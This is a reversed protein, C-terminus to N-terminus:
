GKYKFKVKLMQSFVPNDMAAIWEDVGFYLRDSKLIAHVIHTDTCNKDMLIKQMIFAHEKSKLAEIVLEKSGKEAIMKLLVDELVREEQILVKVCDDSCKNVIHKKTMFNLHWRKKILRALCNPLNLKVVEMNHCKDFDNRNIAKLVHEEPAYKVIASLSSQSLYDRALLKDAFAFYGCKLFVVEVEESHFNWEFLRDIYKKKGHKLVCNVVPAKEIFEDIIAFVIEDRQEKMARKLGKIFEAESKHWLAHDLVVDFVGENIYPDVEDDENKIFNSAKMINNIDKPMKSLQEAEILLMEDNVTDGFSPGFNQGFMPDLSM